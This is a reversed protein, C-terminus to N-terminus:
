RDRAAHFVALVILVDHAEDVVYVVIYPLGVVVWEHTGAVHGARGMLPFHSLRVIDDLIRGIIRDAALPQDRAIWASIQELDRYATDRLIAKM